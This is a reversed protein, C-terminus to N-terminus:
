GRPDPVRIELRRALEDMRRQLDLLMADRCEQRIQDVARRDHTLFRFVRYLGYYFGVAGTVMGAVWLNVWFPSLNRMTDRFQTMSMGLLILVVSVGLVIRIWQRGFAEARLAQQLKTELMARYEQYRNDTEPVDASLLAELFQQRPEHANM